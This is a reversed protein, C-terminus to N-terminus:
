LRSRQEYSNTFFFLKQTALAPFKVTNKLRKSPLDATSDDTSLSSHLMRLFVHKASDSERDGASLFRDSVCEDVMVADCNSTSGGSGCEEATQM